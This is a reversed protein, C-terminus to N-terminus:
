SLFEVEKKLTHYDSYLHNKERFQYQFNRLHILCDNVFNNNNIYIVNYFSDLSEHMIEIDSTILPIGYSAAECASVGQADLRTPLLAFEGHSYLTVIEDHNLQKNIHVINSPKDIYNFINGLGVIAFSCRPLANALDIVLDIAYKSGDLFQRVTVFDYSKKSENNWSKVLFISAVPNPIIINNDFNLDDLRLNKKFEKLMWKSVFVLKIRNNRSIILRWLRLKFFDYIDQFLHNLRTKRHYFYPKPYYSNIRLFEHGHAYLFIDKKLLHLLAVYFFHQRINPAHFIFRSEKIDKIIKVLKVSGVPIDDILYDRRSSFSMVEIDSFYKRLYRNRTHVYM